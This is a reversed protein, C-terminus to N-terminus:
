AQALGLDPVIELLLQIRGASVIRTRDAIAHGGIVALDVDSGQRSLHDTLSVVLCARRRMPRSTM